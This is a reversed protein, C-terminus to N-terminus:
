SRRLRRPGRDPDWVHLHLEGDAVRVLSARRIRLRFFVGEQADGGVPASEEALLGGLRADGAILDRELPASHLEVRPDRHVDHLKQSGPMMGLRVEGAQIAVETGSLRPSGDARVTGLVHHLSAAFRAAIGSALEPAAEAFQSWTAGESLPSAAEPPM